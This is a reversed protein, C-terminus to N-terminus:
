VVNDRPSLPPIESVGLVESMVTCTFGFIYVFYFLSSVARAVLGAQTEHFDYWLRKCSNRIIQTRHKMVLRHRKM